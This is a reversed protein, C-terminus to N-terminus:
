KESYILIAEILRSGCIFLQLVGFQVLFHFFKFKGLAKKPYFLNKAIEFKEHGM